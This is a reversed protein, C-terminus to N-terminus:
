VKLRWSANGMEDLAMRYMKVASEYRQLRHHINGLNVRVRCRVEMKMRNPGGGKSQSAASLMSNLVNLADNYLGKAELITAVNLLVADSVSLHGKIEFM